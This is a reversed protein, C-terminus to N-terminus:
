DIILINGVLKYEEFGATGYIIIKNKLEIISNIRCYDDKKKRDFEELKESILKLMNVKVGYQRFLFQIKSYKNNSIAVLLTGDNLLCICEPKGIKGLYCKYIIQRQPINIIGINHKLLIILINKSIQTMNNGKVFELLYINDINKYTDISFFRLCEDTAFAIEKNPTLEILNYIEENAIEHQKYNIYENYEKRFININGKFSISIIDDNSLEVGKYVVNKLSKFIFDVTYSNNNDNIKIKKMTFDYSSTLISKDKLLFINNIRSKHELITLLCNLYNINYIDIEGLLFGCAFINDKIEIICCVANNSEKIKLNNSKPRFESSNKDKTLRQNSKDSNDKFKKISDAKTLIKQNDKTNFLNNSKNKFLDSLDINESSLNSKPYIKKHRFSTENDNDIYNGQNEIMKNIDKNKKNQNEDKQIIVEKKDDAIKNKEINKVKKNEEDVDDSGEDEKEEISESEEESDEEEEEDDEEEEEQEEDEEESFSNEMNKELIRKNETNKEKEKIKSNDKFLPLEEKKEKKDYLENNNFLKIISLPDENNLNQMQIKESLIKNKTGQKKDDNDINKNLAIKTSKNSKISLKSNLLHGFDLFNINNTSNNLNKRENNENINNKIEKEINLNEILNNKEEKISIHLNEPPKNKNINLSYKDKEGIIKQIINFSKNEIVENNIKNDNSNNINLKKSIINKKYVTNFKKQSNINNKNNDNIGKKKDNENKEIKEDKKIKVIKKKIKTIVKKKNDKKFDNLKADKNSAYKFLDNINELANMNKNLIFQKTNFKLNKLNIIANYNDVKNEYTNIISEKFKLENKINLIIKDLQDKLKVILENFINPINLYNDREKMYNEKIIKIEKRKLNIDDLDVLKHESHFDDSCYQCINKRCELCYYDYTENHLICTTDFKELNVMHHDVYMEDHKKICKNCLIESCEKCYVYNKIENKLIQTKCKVCKLNIFNNNYGYQLYEDINIKKSHGFNCSIDITHSSSNLTLFPILYCNLCRFDKNKNEEINLETNSESLMNLSIKNSEKSIFSNNNINNLSKNISNNIKSNNIISEESTAKM